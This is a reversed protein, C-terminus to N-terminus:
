SRVVLCREPPFYLNVKRDKGIEKLSDSKVRCREGQIHIQYEVTDGLFTVLEVEGDVINKKEQSDIELIRIGEPRIMLQVPDGNAVEKPLPCSVPGIVTAIMGFGNTGSSRVVKGQYLNVRGLFNATFADKPQLYIDRPAGEQIILGQNMVAVRDSLALAEAQDHTVYVTTINLRNVLQKLEVRMEERLKADLNSLPEDLLLIKPEYVLARALAVRQQQGGSLFPAPREAFGELQVLSLAKLVKERIQNRPVGCSSHRLPFAVNDFVTLHPWIAYSQFVMGIGRKHVPIFIHQEESFVTEGGISIEGGDPKELGAISRLTTTKGCGSPGLLTYFEGERAEFSIGRVAKTAGAFNKVLENVRLMPKKEDPKM